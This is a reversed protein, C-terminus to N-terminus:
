LVNLGLCCPKYKASSIKLRRKKFSFTSIKNFHWQLKVSLGIGLWWQNLYHSPASYDVFWCRLWRHNLYEIVSILLAVFQLKRVDWIRSLYKHYGTHLRPFGRAVSRPHPQKIRFLLRKSTKCPFPLWKKGSLSIHFTWQFYARYVDM